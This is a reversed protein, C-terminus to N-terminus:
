RRERRAKRAERIAAREEKRKQKRLLREQEEKTKRGKMGPNLSADPNLESVEPPNRAGEYRHQRSAGGERREHQDVCKTNTEQELKRELKREAAREKRLAQLREMVVAERDVKPKTPRTQAKKHHRAYEQEGKGSPRSAEALGPPRANVAAGDVEPYSYDEVHDVRLTRELIPTGNLNDVALVASRPDIYELFGFGRSTGSKEDRVLNIHNIVGYQEFISLVDGETLVAQLGGVYVVGSSAYKAHWSASTGAIGLELERANIKAVAEVNNM